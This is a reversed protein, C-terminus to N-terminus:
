PIPLTFWFTAGGPTSEAGVSGGHRQVVRQVTALGVGSGEYDRPDHLRQFPEFLLHAYAPDFGVGNDRVCVRLGEGEIRGYVEIEAEARSRTYKWANEMLNQAVLHLLMPDGLAPPIVGITARVARGPERRALEAAVERFLPALDVPVRQLTARTVRALQLLDDILISMRQAAARVRALWDRSEADFGAAHKEQIASTFGDIARLPARLDHSVSYSFSELERNAALLEATREKVRRELDAKAGRVEAEANRQETVDQMVGVMRLLTGDRARDLYGRDAIEAWTGDRRRLRYAGRWLQDGRAVAADLGELIGARDDPHIQSSWWDLNDFRTDPAYGLAALSSWEIRNTDLDWDYVVDTTALSALRFRAESRRLAEQAEYEATADYIAAMARVPRGSPDLVLEAHDVVRAWAGDGRRLRYEVRAAGPQGSRWAALRAEVAPRDDPHVDALWWVHDPSTPRSPLGFLADMGASRLLRGDVLDLDYFAVRAALMSLRYAAPTPGDLGERTLLWTGAQEGGDPDPCLLVRYETTRDELLVPMSLVEDWGMAGEGGLRARVGLLTEALWPNAEALALGVHEEPPRGRLVAFPANVYRYRAEADLRAVGIGAHTLSRLLSLAEDELCWTGPPVSPM